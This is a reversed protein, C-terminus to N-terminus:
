VAVTVVGSRTRLKGCKPCARHLRKAAGCEPCTEVAALIPKELQGVRQRKRMKSKKNKPSAM